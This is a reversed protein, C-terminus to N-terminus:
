EQYHATSNTFCKVLWNWISIFKKLCTDRKHLIQFQFAWCFLPFISCIFAIFGQKIFDKQRRDSKKRERMEKRKNPAATLTCKSIALPERRLGQAPAAANAHLHETTPCPEARSPCLSSCNHLGPWARLSQEVARSAQRTSKWLHYIGRVTLPLM